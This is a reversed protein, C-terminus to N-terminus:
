FVFYNGWIECGWLWWQLFFFSIKLVLFGLVLHLDWECICYRFLLTLFLSYLVWLSFSCACLMRTAAVSKPGLYGSRQSFRTATLVLWDRWSWSCWLCLLWRSCLSYFSFTTATFIITQSELRTTLGFQRRWLWIVGWRRRPRRWHGTRCCKPLSVCIISPASPESHELHNEFEILPPCLFIFLSLFSFHKTKTIKRHKHLRHHVTHAPHQRLIHPFKWVVKTQSHIFLCVWNVEM